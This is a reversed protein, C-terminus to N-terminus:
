QGELLTTTCSNTDSDWTYLKPFYQGSILNYQFCDGLGSSPNPTINKANPKM